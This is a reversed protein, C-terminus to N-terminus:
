LKLNAWITIRKPNVISPAKPAAPQYFGPTGTDSRHGYFHPEDPEESFPWQWSVRNGDIHNPQRTRIEWDDWEADEADKWDWKAYEPKSEFAEGVRYITRYITEDNEDKEPAAIHWGNKLQVFLKMRNTFHRRNEYQISPEEKNIWERISWISDEDINGTDIRWRKQYVGNNTIIVSQMPQIVPIIDEANVREPITVTFYVWPYNVFKRTAYTFKYGALLIEATNPNYLEIWQPLGGGADRSWDRVMYETIRLDQRELEIVVPAPDVPMAPQQPPTNTIIEVPPIGTISTGIDGSGSPPTPGGSSSPPAPGGSSSSPAPGGSSSSPAPGGNGSSPTTPTSDLTTGPTVPNPPVSSRNLNFIRGCSSYRAGDEAKKHEREDEKEVNYGQYGTKKSIYYETVIFKDNGEKIYKENEGPNASIGEINWLFGSQDKCIQRSISVNCILIMGIILLIRFM